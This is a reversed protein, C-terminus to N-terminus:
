RPLVGQAQSTAGIIGADNGFLAKFDEASGDGSGPFLANPQISLAGTHKSVADAYGPCRGGAPHGGASSAHRM